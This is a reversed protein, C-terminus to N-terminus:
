QPLGMRRVLEAFRSDNRVPDYLPDVKLGCLFSDRQEYCQELWQFTTDREGLGAYVGAYNFPSVYAHKAVEDLEQQYRRAEDKHGAIGYGYGLLAIVDPYHPALKHMQQFAQLAQDHKGRMLLCLGWYIRASLFNPERDLTKQLAAIADDYRRAMYLAIGVQTGTLPSYPDLELARQAEHISEDFRAQTALFASYWRHVDPYNPKLEIARRFEREAQSWDWNYDDSIRGLTAHAEALNEDIKLAQTAAERASPLVARPPKLHYTSLMMYANALGVYALAYASDKEIAQQFYTISQGINEPNRENWLYSGNLYLRYAEPDATYNRALESREGPNLTKLLDDAVHQAIADQVAFIDTWPEDFQRSWLPQSDAVRLLRATIRVKEGARQISGELVARVGLEHGAAISDQDLRTYRRVATIPRVTIRKLSSLRNILTDAVGMELAEDRSGAVLPKFPLVAISDVPEVPAMVWRIGFIVATLLTAMVILLGAIRWPSSLLRPFFLSIGSTARAAAGATNIKTEYAKGAKGLRRALIAQGSFERTVFDEPSTLNRQLIKLARRVEDATQFRKARDKALMRNVVDQLEASLDAVYQSLPPPEQGLLSATADAMTEGEFPRHGTIMEYLVIGLSFIDSRGDLEQGRTQEPSMYSVTGLVIGSDTKVEGSDISSADASAAHNGATPAPRESLKALGFDLVKVYGDPRLMINEPKIDRHTIGAAHAASLASATQIAAELAEGLKMGGSNILERLTRGEIFETAIFHVRNADTGADAASGTATEGVEHITIINPHNLASAARAEQRFRGVRRADATFRPPLLKLAVQRGLRADHALYVEGMGGRGILRVLQYHGIMQGARSEKIALLDAAIEAPPAEIFTQARCHFDLLSDVERRLEDDGDCAAALFTAREAPNRELAEQLLQDIQQWREPTMANM